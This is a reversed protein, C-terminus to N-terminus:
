RPRRRVSARVHKKVRLLAARADAHSFWINVVAVVVPDALVRIASLSIEENEWRAEINELVKASLVNACARAESPDEPTVTKLLHRLHRDPWCLLTEITLLDCTHAFPESLDGVLQRVAAFLQERETVAQSEDDEADPM